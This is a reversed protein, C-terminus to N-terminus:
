ANRLRQIQSSWWNNRKNRLNFSFNYFQCCQYWRGMRLQITGYESPITFHATLM